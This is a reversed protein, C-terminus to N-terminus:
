LDFTEYRFDLGAGTLLIGSELLRTNKWQSDPKGSEPVIHISNRWRLDIFIGELAITKVVWSMSDLIFFSSLLLHAQTHSETDPAHPQFPTTPLFSLPPPPHPSLWPFFEISLPCTAPIMNLHQNLHMKFFPQHQDDSEGSELVIFIQREQAQIKGPRGLNVIPGLLM